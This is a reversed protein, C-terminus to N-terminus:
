DRLMRAVMWGFLLGAGIVLWPSRTSAQAAKQEVAVLMGQPQPEIAMEQAAPQYGDAYV